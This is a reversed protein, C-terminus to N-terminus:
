TLRRTEFPSILGQNTLKVGVDANNVLKRSILNQFAIEFLVTNYGTRRKLHPLPVPKPRTSLNDLLVALIKKETREVARSLEQTNMKRKM